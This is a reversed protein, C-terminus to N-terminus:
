RGASIKANKATIFDARRWLGADSEVGPRLAWGAKGPIRRAEFFGKKSSGRTKIRAMGAM